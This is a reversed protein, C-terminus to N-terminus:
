SAEVHMNLLQSTITCLQQTLLKMNDLMCILFVRMENQENLSYALAEKRLYDYDKILLVVDTTVENVPNIPHPANNFVNYGTTEIIDISFLSFHYSLINKDEISIWTRTYDSTVPEKIKKKIAQIRFDFEGLHPNYYDIHNVPSNIFCEAHDGGEFSVTVANNHKGIYKKERVTKKTKYLNSAKEQKHIQEDLSNILSTIAHNGISHSFTYQPLFPDAEHLPIISDVGPLKLKTKHNPITNEYTHIIPIEDKPKQEEGWSLKRRSNSPSNPSLLNIRDNIFCGVICQIEINEQLLLPVLTNTLNSLADDEVHIPLFTNLNKIPSSPSTSRSSSSEDSSHDIKRKRLSPSTTPTISDDSISSYYHTMSVFFM